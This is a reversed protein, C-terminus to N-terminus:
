HFFNQRALLFKHRNKLSLQQSVEQLVKVGVKPSRRIMLEQARLPEPLYLVDEPMKLQTIPIMPIEIENNLAHRIKEEVGTILYHAAGGLVGIRAGVDKYIVEDSKTRKVRLLNGDEDRIRQIGYRLDFAKREDESVEIETFEGIKQLVVDPVDAPLIGLDQFTRPTSVNTQKPPAVDKLSDSVNEVSPEEESQANINLAQERLSFEIRPLISIFEERDSVQKLFKPIMENVLEDRIEPEVELIKDINREFLERAKDLFKPELNKEGGRYREMLDMIEARLARSARDWKREDWSKKQSKRYLMKM